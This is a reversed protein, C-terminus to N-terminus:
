LSYTFQAVLVHTTQQFLYPKLDALALRSWKYATIQFSIKISKAIVNQFTTGTYVQISRMYPKCPVLNIANQHMSVPPCVAITRLIRLREEQIHVSIRVRRALSELEVFIKSRLYWELTLIVYENKSITNTIITLSNSEEFTANVGLGFKM